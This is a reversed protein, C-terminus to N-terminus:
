WQESYGGAQKAPRSVLEQPRLNLFPQEASNERQLVVEELRQGLFALPHVETQRRRSINLPSKWTSQPSSEKWRNEFAGLSREM